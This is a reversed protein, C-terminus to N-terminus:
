VKTKNAFREAVNRRSIKEVEVPTYQVIFDNIHMYGGGVRCFIQGGKEIKVYVRKQGFLYVGESERLFMIKLKNREPFQNVYSALARDIKDDRRAIYIAQNKELTKNLRMLEEIKEEM